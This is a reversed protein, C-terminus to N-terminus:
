KVVRVNQATIVLISFTVIVSIVHEVINPLIKLYNPHLHLYHISYTINVYIYLFSSPVKEYPRENYWEEEHPDDLFESDYPAKWRKVSGNEKEKDGKKPTDKEGKKPTKKPTDTDGKKPTNKGKKKPTEKDGKKPTKKPTDKKNGKKPTKKPEIYEDDFLM